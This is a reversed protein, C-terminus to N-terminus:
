RLKFREGLWDGRGVEMGQSRVNVTITSAQRSKQEWKISEIFHLLRLVWVNRGFDDILNLTFCKATRICVEKAAPGLGSDALQHGRSPWWYTKKLHLTFPFTVKAFGCRGVRVLFDSSLDGKHETSSEHSDVYEFQTQRSQREKWYTLTLPMKPVKIYFWARAPFVCGCFYCPIQAWYRQWITNYNHPALTAPASHRPKSIAQNSKGQAQHLTLVRELERERVCM